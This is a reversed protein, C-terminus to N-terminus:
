ISGTVEQLSEEKGVHNDEAEDMLLRLEEDLSCGHKKGVNVLWPVVDPKEMFCRNLLAVATEKGIWGQKWFYGSKVLVALHDLAIHLDGGKAHADLLARRVRADLVFTSSKPGSKGAVIGFARMERDLFVVDHDGRASRFLMRFTNADPPDPCLARIHKYFDFGATIDGAALMSELVVNFVPLPIDFKSRLSFLAAVTSEILKRDNKLMAYVSRTSGMSIVIGADRMLCLTQMANAVDGAGLYCDVLAEFHSTNLKGGRGALHQVAVTALDIDHAKAATNLVNACIADSPNLLNTSVTRNWIYRTGDYHLQRSCWDLLFHWTNLSVTSDDRLTRFGTIKLAEDLFGLQCFALTFIDYIYDPVRAGSHVMTEIADLALEYQGDRLLGVAEYARGVPTLEIWKAKMNRLLQNRLLYDPHVSLAQLAGHYVRSTQQVKCIEMWEFLWWLERASGDCHAQSQILPDFIRLTPPELRNGLLYKVFLEIRRKQGPEDRTERLADYITRTSANDLVPDFPPIAKLLRQLTTAPDPQDLSRQDQHHQSTTTNIVPVESSTESTDKADNHLRTSHFARKTRLYAPHSDRAPTTRRRTTPRPRLPTQIVSILLNTDISPCLCRWLGDIAIRSSSM